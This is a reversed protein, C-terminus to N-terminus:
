YINSSLLIVFSMMIGNVNLQHSKSVFDGDSTQHMQFASSTDESQVDSQVVKAQPARFDIEVRHSPIAFEGAPYTWQLLM